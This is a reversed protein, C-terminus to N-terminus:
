GEAETSMGLWKEAEAVAQALMWTHGVEWATQWEHQTLLQQASESRQASLPQYFLLSPTDTQEGFGAAAGLFAAAVQANETPTTYITTLLLGALTV